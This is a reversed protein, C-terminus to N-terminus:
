VFVEWRKIVGIKKYFKLMDKATNFNCHTEKMIRYATINPYEDLLKYVKFLKETIKGKRRKM